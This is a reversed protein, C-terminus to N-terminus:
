EDTARGWHRTRVSFALKLTDRRTPMNKTQGVFNYYARLVTIWGLKHRMILVFPTVFWEVSEDM